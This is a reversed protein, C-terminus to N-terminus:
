DASLIPYQHREVRVLLRNLLPTLALAIVPLLVVALATWLVLAHWEWLWIKRVLAIPTARATALLSRPSLPLPTTHFVLSGLRIFPVVLLIQLPYVIHNGLQSAAINLRFVFAAAFCLITTSGILPNIGIVIGAALSWALREPSAGMRLMALVPLAIRRYAWNHSDRTM